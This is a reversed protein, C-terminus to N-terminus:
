NLISNIHCDTDGSVVPSHLARHDPLKQAPHTCPMLLSHLQEFEIEPKLFHAFISDVKSKM